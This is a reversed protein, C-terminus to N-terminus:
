GGFYKSINEFSMEKYKEMILETINKLGDIANKKDIFIGIIILEKNKRKLLEIGKYIEISKEFCIYYNSVNIKDKSLGDAIIARKSIKM